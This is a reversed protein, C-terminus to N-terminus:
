HDMQKDVIGMHIYTGCPGMGQGTKDVIIDGLAQFRTPAWYIM